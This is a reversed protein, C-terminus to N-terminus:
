SLAAISQEITASKISCRVKEGAMRYLVLYHFRKSSHIHQHAATHNYGSDSHDIRKSVINLRDPGCEFFALATDSVDRHKVGGSVWGGNCGFDFIPVDGL